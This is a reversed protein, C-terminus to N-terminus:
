EENRMGEGEITAPERLMIYILIGIGASIAMDAVNFVPWDLIPIDILPHLLPRLNVHVFDTVHGIRMRDIFNGMGGGFLLGLALRLKMSQAPLQYNIYVIALAVLAALLTFIWKAQPFLGFATGTNTTHFLEFYPHLNPYPQISSYLPMVAEIKWKTLQDLIIVATGIWGFMQKRRYFPAAAEPVPESITKELNAANNNEIEPM